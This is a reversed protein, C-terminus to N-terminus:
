GLTKDNTKLLPNNINFELTEYKGNEDPSTKIEIPTDAPHYSLVAEMYNKYTSNIRFADEWSHDTKNSLNTGIRNKAEPWGWNYGQLAALMNNDLNNFSDRLVLAGLLPQKQANNIDEDTFTYEEYQNTVYNFYRMTYGSWVSRNIQFLGVDGTANSQTNHFGLSEASCIDLLLESDLGTIAAAENILDGYKARAGEKYAMYERTRPTISFDIEYTNERSIDDNKIEAKSGVKPLTIEEDYVINLDKEPVKEEQKYEQEYALKPDEPPIEQEQQKNLVEGGFKLSFLVALTFLSLSLVQTKGAISKSRNPKQYSSKQDLLKYNDVKLDYDEFEFYLTKGRKSEKKPTSSFIMDFLKKSKAESIYIGKPYKSSYLKLRKIDQKPDLELLYKEM